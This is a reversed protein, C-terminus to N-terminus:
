SGLQEMQCTGVLRFTEPPLPMQTHPDFLQKLKRSWYYYNFCGCDILIPQPNTAPLPFVIHLTEVHCKPCTFIREECEVLINPPCESCM